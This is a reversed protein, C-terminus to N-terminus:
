QDANMKGELIKLSRACWNATFHLGYKRCLRIFEEVTINKM